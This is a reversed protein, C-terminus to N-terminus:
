RRFFSFRGAAIDPAYVVVLRFEFSKIAVDAVVLLDGDVAFVVNVDAGFSRRVPLSVGVSTRCGYASFVNFDNELM